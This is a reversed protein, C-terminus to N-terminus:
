LLEKTGSVHCQYVQIYKQANMYIDKREQKIEDVSVSSTPKGESPLHIDLSGVMQLGGLDLVVLLVLVSVWIWYSIM